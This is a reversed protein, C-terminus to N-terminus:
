NTKQIDNLVNNIINRMEPQIPNFDSVSSVLAWETHEFDLKPKQFRNMKWQYIYFIGSGTDVEKLLKVDSPDGIKIETEEFTERIACQKPTEGEERHGSPISWYEAFKYVASSRKFIMVKDDYTIIVGAFGLM